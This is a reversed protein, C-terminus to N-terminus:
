VIIDAWIVYEKVAVTACHTLANVMCASLQTNSDWGRCVKTTFVPLSLEVAIREAIPTLTSSGRLHGDYVYLGHWLHQPVNLFGWPGSHRANTLNRARWLCHHRRWILSFNELPVLFGVCVFTSKAKVGKQSIREDTTLQMDAWNMNHYPVVNLVHVMYVLWKSSRQPCLTHTWFAWNVKGIM